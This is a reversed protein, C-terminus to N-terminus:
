SVQPTYVSLRKPHPKNTTAKEEPEQGSENRLNQSNDATSGETIHQVTSEDMSWGHGSHYIRWSTANVETIIVVDCPLLMREIVGNGRTGSLVM